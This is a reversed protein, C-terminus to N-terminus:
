YEYIFLQDTEDNVLYIRRMKNNVAIGEFKRRGLDYSRIPNLDTDTVVIRMSEDSVIWFERNDHDYFLGSLDLMTYPASFNMDIERVIQLNKDLEIFLRPNKQHLLYLHENDPNMSIGELGDNEISNKPPINVVNLVRGILDLQLVQMLKEEVVWLTMDNPNMTIGELDNGRYNELFDIIEGEFTIRYIRGDEVDSVTWLFNGSADLALGSPDKVSLEHFSILTLDGQEAPEEPDTSCGSLLCLIFWIASVNSRFFRSLDPIM